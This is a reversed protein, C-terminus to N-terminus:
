AFFPFSYQPHTIPSSPKARYRPLPLFVPLASEARDATKDGDVKALAIDAYRWRASYVREPAGVDSLSTLKLNM